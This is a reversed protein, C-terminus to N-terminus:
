DFVQPELTQLINILSGMLMPNALNQEISLNPNYARGFMSSKLQEIARYFLESSQGLLSRVIQSKRENEQRLKAKKGEEDLQKAKLTAELKAKKEALKELNAHKKQMEKDEYGGRLAEVFFGAANIIKGSALAKETVQIAKRMAGETHLEVLSMFIKLSVGFKKVVIPTLELFLSEQAEDSSIDSLVDSLVDDLMANSDDNQTQPLEKQKANNNFTHFILSSVKKGMKIEEYTFGIDTKEALRRQAEDLVRMKFGAYQQYKESVGLIEKLEDLEFQVSYQNKGYVIQFNSVIPYKFRNEIKQFYGHRM